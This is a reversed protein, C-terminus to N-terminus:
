SAQGQEPVRVAEYAKLNESVFCVLEEFVPELGENLVVSAKDNLKELAEKHREREEDRRKKTMELQAMQHFHEHYRNGMEQNESDEEKELSVMELSEEGIGSELEKGIKAQLDRRRKEYLSSLHGLKERRNKEDEQLKRYERVANGFGSILDLIKKEPINSVGLFWDNSIIFSAPAGMKGPSFPPAGDPTEELPDPEQQIWKTLYGNLAEIFSKQTLIWKEFRRNWKSIEKELKLTSRAIRSSDTKIRANINETNLSTISKLQKTHCDLISKWLRILGQVLEALQPQLEQDRIRHIQKSISEVSKIAVSIKNQLSKVTESTSNLVTWEAGHEDLYKLRGYKRDYEARLKEEDKVQKYLRKEWVYLKELTLSLNLPMLSGSQLDGNSRIANSSSAYNKNKSRSVSHKHPLCSSPIIPITSALNVGLLGSQHQVKGVELMNSVEQSSDIVLEFQKKIEEIVENLDRTGATLSVVTGSGSNSTAISISNTSGEEFKVEKNKGISGEGFIVEKNKGISGEENTGNTGINVSTTPGVSGEKEKGKGKEKEIEKEQEKEKFQLEDELEPIGEQKRVENSDPSGHYSNSHISNPYAFREDPYDMMFQDYNSFPDFFNWASNEEVPPPPTEAQSPGPRDDFNPNPNPNFYATPEAFPPYEYGYGYNYPDYTASPIPRSSNMQFNKSFTRSDEKLSRSADLVPKGETSFAHSLPPVTSSNARSSKKLNEDEEEEDEFSLCHSLPTVTSSDSDSDSDTKKSKGRSSPPLTLVPSGPASISLEDAAFRQLAESVASLSQLYASHAAAASYRRDGSTRILETRDRCLHLPESNDLNSNSFPNHNFHLGIKRRSSSSCGM